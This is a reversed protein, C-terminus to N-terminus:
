SEPIGALSGSQYQGAHPAEATAVDRPAPPATQADDDDRRLFGM